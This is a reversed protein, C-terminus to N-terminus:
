IVELVRIPREPHQGNEDTVYIHDWGLRVKQGPQLSKIKEVFEKPQSGDDDNEKLSAYFKDQKEEGYQGPKEYETYEDIQFIAVDKAHGCRDPCLATRFMCPKHEIRLFTAVTRHLALLEFTSAMFFYDLRCTFM